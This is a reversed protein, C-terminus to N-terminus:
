CRQKKKKEDGSQVTVCIVVRRKIIYDDSDDMLSSSSSLAVLSSNGMARHSKERMIHALYCKVFCKLAYSVQLSNKISVFYIAFRSVYIRRSEAVKM